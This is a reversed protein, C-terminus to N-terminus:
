TRVRARLSGLRQDLEGEDRRYEQEKQKPDDVYTASDEIVVRKVV